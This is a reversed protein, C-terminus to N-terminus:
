KNKRGFPLKDISRVGIYGLTPSLLGGLIWEDVETPLNLQHSSNLVAFVIDVIFVYVIAAIWSQRALKPRTRRVYEDTSEVEKRATEQIQILQTTEASLVNLERDREIEALKVQLTQLQVQLEPPMQAIHQSVRNQAEEVPLGRVADVVNAVSDAADKAKGGFLSGVTRLITPGASILSLVLPAM